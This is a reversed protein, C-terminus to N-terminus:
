GWPFLGRVWQIPPQSPGPAPRSATFSVRAEAPYLVWATWGTAYNIKHSSSLSHIIDFSLSNSLNYFSVTTSLNLANFWISGPISGPRDLGCGTAIGVLSERSWLGLLWPIVHFGQFQLPYWFFAKTHSPRTILVSSVRSPLRSETAVTALHSPSDIEALWVVRKRPDHLVPFLQGSKGHQMGARKYLLLL